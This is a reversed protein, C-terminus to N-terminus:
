GARKDSAHRRLLFGVALLALGGVVVFVLNAGTFPLAGDSGSALVAGQASAAEGGGGSPNAGFATAPLALVCVTGLLFLLRRTKKM